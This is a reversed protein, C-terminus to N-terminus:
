SSPKSYHMLPIQLHHSPGREVVELLGSFTSSELLGSFGVSELLGRNGPSELNWYIELLYAFTFGM